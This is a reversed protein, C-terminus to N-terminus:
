VYKMKTMDIMGGDAKKISDLTKAQQKHLGSAKHLAKALLMNEKKVNPREMMRSLTAHDGTKLYHLADELDQAKQKELDQAKQKEEEGGRRLCCKKYKKGSGCPCRENVGIRASSSSSAAM